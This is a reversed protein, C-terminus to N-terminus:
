SIWAIFESLTSFTKYTRENFVFDVHDFSYGGIAWYSFYDKMAEDASRPTLWRTIFIELGTVYKGAPDLIVIKGGSVPIVVAMHGTPGSGSISMAYANYLTGVYYKFYSRIMTTLLIAMDECDGHTDKLTETPFRWFDERWDINFGYELSGTIIPTYTDYSYSIHQVVWGQLNSIDNWLDSSTGDYGGTIQYVLSRITPDDLTIFQTANSGPLTRLEITNRLRDFNANMKSVRQVLESWMSQLTNYDSSLKNYSSQLASYQTQLTQYNNQLANYDSKLGSYSNSLDNYQQQLNQYNSQLTSYDTKLTTYSNSLDNYKSELSLYQDNLNSYQRQLGQLSFFTLANSVILLMVLIFLVFLWNKQKKHSESM